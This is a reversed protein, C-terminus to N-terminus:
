APIRLRDPIIMEALSCIESECKKLLGVGATPKDRKEGQTERVFCVGVIGRLVM